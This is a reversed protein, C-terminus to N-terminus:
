SSVRTPSVPSAMTDNELLVDEILKQMRQQEAGDEPKPLPLRINVMNVTLENKENEMYSTGWRKALRKGGSDDATSSGHVCRVALSHNYAQIREEGGIDKRFQVAVPITM